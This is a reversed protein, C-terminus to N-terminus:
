LNMDGRTGMFVCPQGKTRRETSTRMCEHTRVVFGRSSGRAAGAEHSCQIGVAPRQADLRRPLNHHASAVPSLSKGQFESSVKSSLPSLFDDLHSLLVTDILKEITVQKSHLSM